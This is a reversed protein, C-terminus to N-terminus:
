TQWTRYCVPYWYWWCQSPNKDSKLTNTKGGTVSSNRKRIWLAVRSNLPFRWLKETPSPDFRRVTTQWWKSNTLYSCETMVPSVVSFIYTECLILNQISSFKFDIFYITKALPGRTSVVIDFIQMAHIEWPRLPFNAVHFHFIHPSSKVFISDPYWTWLITSTVSASSINMLYAISSCNAVSFYRTM